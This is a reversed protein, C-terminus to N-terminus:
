FKGDYPTKVPNGHIDKTRRDRDKSPFHSGNLGSSNQQREARVVWGGQTMTHYDSKYQKGSSGKHSNLIELLNELKQQGHLALLKAHEQETLFVFEKFAIKESIPPKEKKIKEKEEKKDNKRREQEDGRPRGETAGRDGKIDGEEEYNIDWVSSSLIKIKTGVTARGTAGKKRNRCTEHIKLHGRQELIKKATRYKKETEIGCKKYDGIHAEGIELGDPNGSIRRARLAIITLLLFANPHHEILYRTEESDIFKIFRKVSM